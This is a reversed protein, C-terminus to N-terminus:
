FSCSDACIACGGILLRCAERTAEKVGRPPPTLLLRRLWRRPQTALQPGALADLLSPIGATTALGLQSATAYPLCRLRRSCAAM